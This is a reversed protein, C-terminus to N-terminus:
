YEDDESYLPPLYIGQEEAEEHILEARMKLMSFYAEDSTAPDVMRDLLHDIQQRRDM